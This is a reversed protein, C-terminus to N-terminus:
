EEPKMFGRLKEKFIEAAKGLEAEIGQKLPEFGKALDSATKEVNESVKGVFQFIPDESGSMADKYYQYAEDFEEKVNEEHYERRLYNGELISQYAGSSAWSKLEQLRIVPYPHSTWASNLIKHISDVLSKQDEYEQAQLFFDNINVQGLDDAGAMKMLLNYSTEESQLALVEVRDASLESKRNWEAMALLIGAVVFQPVPIIGLSVNTLIWIITKYLSHGSMVHGMEHALIAKVEADDCQKLVASNLIIFPEQVGLVGANMVPSQTVFVAPKYGWDFTEVIDDLHRDLFAYQRESVKVSSALMLLRLSRESTLSLLVKFFEDIGKLQRVAGLAARDAPHEWSRPDIKEFRKMRKILM